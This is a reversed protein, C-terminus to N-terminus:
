KHLSWGTHISELLCWYVRQEPYTENVLSTQYEPYDIKVTLNDQFINEHCNFVRESTGKTIQCHFFRSHHTKNPSCNTEPVSFSGIHTFAWPVRPGIRSRSQTWGNTIHDTQIVFSDGWAWDQIRLGNISFVNKHLNLVGPTKFLSKNTVKM